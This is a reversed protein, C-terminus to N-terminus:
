SPTLRGVVPQTRAGVAAASRSGLGSWLPMCPSASVWCCFATSCIMNGPDLRATVGLVRYVGMDSLVNRLPIIWRFDIVMGHLLYMSFSIRGIFLALPNDLTTRSSLCGVIAAVCLMAVGVEMWSQFVTAKSPLLYALVLAALVAGVVVRGMTPGMVLKDRWIAAIMGFAFCDLYLIMTRMPFHPVSWLGLRGAFSAAALMILVVTVIERGRLWGNRLPLLLLPAVAYFWIEAHLTWHVAVGYGLGQTPKIVFLNNLVASAIEPGPRDGLSFAVWLLLMFGMPIYIRLVRRAYFTGLSQKKLSLTILYGSIAFFVFVGLFGGPAVPSYVHHVFSGPCHGLVAARRLVRDKACAVKPQPRGTVGGARM